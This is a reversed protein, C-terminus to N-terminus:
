RREVSTHGRATNWSEITLAESGPQLFVVEDIDMRFLDFPGPPPPYGSMAAFADIFAAKAADDDVWVARGSIRADGDAVMKDANASQYSCRGDRRLDRSKLSDPMMGLWLEGAHFLPEVGSIRPSGDTRLTALYGLGHQEFRARVRGALEPVTQELHSWTSM